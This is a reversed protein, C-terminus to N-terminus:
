TSSARRNKTFSRARKSTAAAGTSGAARFSSSSARGSASRERMTRTCIRGRLVVIRLDHTHTHMGADFGPAFKTFAGYPGKDHNGWLVAKAVGPIVDKFKADEASVFILDKKKSAKAQVQGSGVAWTLTLLVAVGVVMLARQM